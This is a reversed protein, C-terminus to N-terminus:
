TLYVKHARLYVLCMFAKM